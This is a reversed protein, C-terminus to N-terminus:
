PCRTPARSRPAPRCPLPSLAFWGPPPPATPPSSAAMSRSSARADPAIRICSSRARAGPRPVRAREQCSACVRSPMSWTRCRAPTVGRRSTIRWRRWCITANTPSPAFWSRTGQFRHRRPASDLLRGHWPMAFVPRGDRPAELYYIGADLSADLVLHTGQVLEVPRPAPAPHVRGLLDNVWPGAANVVVPCEVEHSRGDALYHVTCGRAGLEIATVEASTLVRAGLASASAVVARTLLADDTQAEQYRFVSRLGATALGDLRGWERRPVRAFRNAAGFGGLAAYLTLGARVQWPRQRTDTYIPIHVPGLRVLAPALRLLLARERLCERVLGFQATELYRLGGHILKSSRSSTAHAIGRRELVLVSFGAAAAAQAVGAGHIGAGVVAVDCRERAM